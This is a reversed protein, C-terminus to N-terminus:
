PKEQIHTVFEALAEENQLVQYHCGIRVTCLEDQHSVVMQGSNEPIDIIYESSQISLPNLRALVPAKLRGYVARTQSRWRDSKRRLRLDPNAIQWLHGIHGWAFGPDAERHWEGKPMFSHDSAPGIAIRAEFRAPDDRQSLVLLGGSGSGLLIVPKDSNSRVVKNIFADILSLYKSFDISNISQQHTNFKGSGGQGPMEVVWVTYGRAIIRRMLSFYAEAPFDADAILVVHGRPNVAPSAVGYRAEPLGDADFGDWTFGEPPYYAPPLGPPIRSDLFARYSSSPIPELRTENNIVFAAGSGILAIGVLAVGWWYKIRLSTMTPSYRAM